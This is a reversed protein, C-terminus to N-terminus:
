LLRAVVQATAPGVGLLLARRLDRPRDVDRRLSSRAAIEAAGSRRHARRSGPGYLPHLVRGPLAALLTTGLGEADAVFGRGTGTRSVATLAAALDQSRLAPLDAPLAAVGLDPDGTRLLADGHRLAANLGAAPRDPEVAVGPRALAAGVRPDDTVVLVRAVLPCGLAASVVDDAFALALDARAPEGYAALRTKAVALPRVPVVLGWRQPM